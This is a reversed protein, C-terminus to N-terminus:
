SVLYKSLATYFLLLSKVLFSIFDVAWCYCHYSATYVAPSTSYHLGQSWGSPRKDDGADLIFVKKRTIVGHPVTKMDHPM